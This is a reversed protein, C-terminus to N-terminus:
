VVTFTVFQGTKKGFCLKLLHSKLQIGNVTFLNVASKQMSDIGRSQWHGERRNGGGGGFLATSISQQRRGQTKYQFEKGGRGVCTTTLAKTPAIGEMIFTNNTQRIKQSIKLM